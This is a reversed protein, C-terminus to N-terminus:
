AGLDAVALRGEFRSRDIGDRRTWTLSAPAAGVGEFSLGRLRGALHDLRLGDPRPRLRFGVSGWNEGGRGLQDIQLAIPLVRAPDVGALPGEAAPDPHPDPAALRLYDLRAVWPADSDPLTLEGALKDSRLRLRWAADGHDGEVRVERLTEGAAIVEPLRID